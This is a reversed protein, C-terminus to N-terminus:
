AIQLYVKESYREIHYESNDNLINIAGVIDRHQKYGCKCKYNRTNSKKNKGCAPCKQSTYYEKVKVLKIGYRTLKNELQLMLQGFRWMNLKHNTSKKMKGKTNRTTTDVDGYIVKSINHEICWKLYLKTQKHIIDSIKRDFEYKIKWIARTYKKYQKSGKICNARLLQIEAQRKDKLRILSRLKRNTIIVCNGNNDISTIAHIDGLDISAINDSQILNENDPEKYKISLYYKGKYVLEIEVINQPITKVHCKIQKCGKIASLRIIKNKYDPFIAQSDWGTSMYKKEKYPLNVKYSEKHKAKRSKWMANRAYYYKFVIHHIGKAHLQFKQKTESELLSLGMSKNSEKQYESDIQM